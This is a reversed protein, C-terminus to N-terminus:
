LNVNSTTKGCGTEGIVLTVNNNEISYILEKDIIIEYIVFQNLRYHNM